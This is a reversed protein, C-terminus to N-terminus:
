CLDPYMRCAEPTGSPAPGSTPTPAPSPSSPTIPPPSPVSSSVPNAVLFRGAAWGSNSGSTVLCWDTRDEPSPQCAHLVVHEDDYRLHGSIEASPRPDVRLNLGEPDSPFVGDVKYNRRVVPALYRAALSWGSLCGYSVQCWGNTQCQGIVVGVGNAPIVGRRGSSSSPGDRVALGGIPDDSKVNIVTYNGNPAIRCSNQSWATNSVVLVAMFM